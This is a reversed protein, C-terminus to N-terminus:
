KIVLNYVRGDKYEYRIIGKKYTFYVNNPITDASYDVKNYHGIYVTPYTVANLTYNNKIDYQQYSPYNYDILVFRDGGGSPSLAISFFHLKSNSKNYYFQLYQLYNKEITYNWFEGTIIHFTDTKSINLSDRFYLIDNNSLLPIIDKNIYEHEDVPVCSIM